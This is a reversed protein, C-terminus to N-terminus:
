RVRKIILNLQNEEPINILTFVITVVIANQEALDSIRVDILNVRLENFRIANQIYTKLTEVTFADIPEFLSAKIKSGITSDYFREGQNTLILNRLAQKVSEENSVKALNGSLPNVDFSTLFDSYREEKKYRPSFIDSRAM